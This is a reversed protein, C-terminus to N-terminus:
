ATYEFPQVINKLITVSRYYDVGDRGRRRYEVYQYLKHRRFRKEPMIIATVTHVHLCLTRRHEGGANEPFIIAPKGSFTRQCPLYGPPQNTLLPHVPGQSSAINVTHKGKKKTVWPLTDTRQNRGHFPLINQSLRHHHEVFLRKCDTKVPKNFRAAWASQGRLV